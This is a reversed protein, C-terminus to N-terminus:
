MSGPIGGAGLSIGYYNLMLTFSTILLVLLRGAMRPHHLLHVLKVPPESSGENGGSTSTGADSCSGRAEEAAALDQQKSCASSCSSVLPETPVQSKNGAAIRQLAQRAEETRGRSLLWRGSEPVLPYLLLTAANLSACAILLHQWAPLGFALAVMVFEGVQVFLCVPALYRRALWAFLGPVAVTHQCAPLQALMRVVKTIDDRSHQSDTFTPQSAPTSSVPLVADWGFASCQMSVIFFALALIGALGRCVTVLVDAFCDVTTSIKM